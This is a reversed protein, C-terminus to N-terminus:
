YVPISNRVVGRPDIKIIRYATTTGYVSGDPAFGFGIFYEPWGPLTDIKFPKMKLASIECYTGSRLGGSVFTKRDSSLGMGYNYSNDTEFLTIGNASISANSNNYNFVLIFDELVIVKPTTGPTYFIEKESKKEGTKLDYEIMISVRGDNEQLFRKKEIGALNKPIAGSSIKAERDQPGEAFLVLQAAGADMGMALVKGPYQITSILSGDTFSMLKVLSKKWGPQLGAIRDAAPSASFRGANKVEALKTWDSLRYFSLTESTDEIVLVSGDQNFAMEFANTKIWIRQKVTL